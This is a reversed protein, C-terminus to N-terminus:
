FEGRKEKTFMFDFGPNQFLSIYKVQLNLFAWNRNEIVEYNKNKRYSM